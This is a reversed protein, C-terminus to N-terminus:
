RNISEAEEAGVAIRQVVAPHAQVAQRDLLRMLPQKPRHELREALRPPGQKPVDNDESRCGCGQLRRDIRPVVAVGEGLIWPCAGPEIAHAFLCPASPPAIHCSGRVREVNRPDHIAGRCWARAISYAMGQTSERELQRGALVAHRSDPTFRVVYPQFGRSDDYITLSQAAAIGSSGVTVLLVFVHPFRM